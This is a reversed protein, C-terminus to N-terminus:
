SRDIRRAASRFREAGDAAFQMARLFDEVTYDPRGKRIEALYRRAEDLRGALSLSYAAIALIHAHANPRAAARVGWDAAEDFRGLRVLAMARAGLMGFLLPDFPSLNRAYDSASVATEPDGAQSHVFSLTYHGLAFNPSLDVTQELERIAEGNRNRLWLARGMAWHAGPDRDDAMLSQDAARFARDVEPERPAWGQFANQFHTFSLGGYARAFTPDLQVAREFFTRAHENDSETFRYMHWLGRHYAEWATLSAPPILVARNRESAEIESALEAVIRNGLEDLMSFTDDATRDFEETWVIRATRTEILDVGITLREGRRRVSGSAVYDVHLIRAAELGKVGREHLAFMTGQAIVFLSRLKALRTIVDHVLADAVRDRAGTGSALDDFPMVAISAREAPTAREIPAAPTVDVQTRLARWVERLPAGDLGEAEFQRVTATVHEEGERLRHTRGLLALLLEHPRLDFPALELWQELRGQAEREPAAEIFRELIAIHLERFRRRQATIWGEFQPCADIELGELLDGAYLDLCDRLEDLSCADLDRCARAVTLADVFGDGVDLEVLQGRGQVRRHEADDVISRIKSLSWRLEGRPDNPIDWLLECLQSRTVPHAALALYALLGRVKRSAPLELAIGDRSVTLPGLM